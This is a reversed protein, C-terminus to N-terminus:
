LHPSLDAGTYRVQPVVSFVFVWAQLSPNELLWIIVSVM